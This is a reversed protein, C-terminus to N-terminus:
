FWFASQFVTVALSADLKFNPTTNLSIFPFFVILPNIVPVFTLLETFIMVVNVQQRLGLLM